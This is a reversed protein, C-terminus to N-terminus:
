KSRRAEELLVRTTQFDEEVTRQFEQAQQRLREVRVLLNEPKDISAAPEEDNDSAM